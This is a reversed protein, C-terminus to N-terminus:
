GFVARKNYVSIVLRSGEQSLVRFETGKKDKWAYNTLNLREDNMEADIIKTHLHELMKSYDQLSLHNSCAREGEERNEPHYKPCAYFPSNPGEQIAMPVPKDHRYCCVLQIDDWSGTIMSKGM